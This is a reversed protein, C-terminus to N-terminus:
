ALPGIPELPENDRAPELERATRGPSARGVGARISRRSATAGRCPGHRRHRGLRAPRQARRSLSPGPPRSRALVDHHRHWLLLQDEASRTPTARSTQQRRSTGPTCEDYGVSVLLNQLAHRPHGRRGFSVPRPLSRRLGSESGPERDRGRLCGARSPRAPDAAPGWRPHMRHGHPGLVPGQQGLSRSLGGALERRPSLKQANKGRVTAPLRRELEPSSRMRRSRM